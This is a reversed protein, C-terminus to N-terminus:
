VMKKIEHILQYPNLGFAPYIIHAQSYFPERKSLQAEIEAILQNNPINALLPRAFKRHQVRQALVAAPAKLYITIGTSNMFEMNDFYCACGGGTAIVSNNFMSQKHLEEKELERFFLEGSENFIDSITKGAEKEIKYDLDIATKHLLAALKRSTSSKGCGSFGVLYIPKSVVVM